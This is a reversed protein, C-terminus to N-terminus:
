FFIHKLKFITMMKRNVFKYPKYKIIMEFTIEKIEYEIKYGKLEWISNSLNTKHKYRQINLM